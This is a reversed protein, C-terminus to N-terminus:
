VHKVNQVDKKMICFKNQIHKVRQIIVGFVNLHVGKLFVTSRIGPGDHISCKQLNIVLPNM